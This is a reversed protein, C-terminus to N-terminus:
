KNKRKNKQKIKKLELKIYLIKIMENLDQKQEAISWTQKLKYKM